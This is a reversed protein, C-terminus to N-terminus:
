IQGIYELLKLFLNIFSKDLGEKKLKRIAIRKKDIPDSGFLIGDIKVKTETEIQLDMLISDIDENILRVADIEIDKGKCNITLQGVTSVNNVIVIFDNGEVYCENEIVNGDSLNGYSDFVKGLIKDSYEISLKKDCKKVPIGKKLFMVNDFPIAKAINENIEVIEFLYRNDKYDAEVLDGIIACSADELLIKVNLDSVAIISGIM